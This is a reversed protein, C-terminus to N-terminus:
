FFVPSIRINCTLDAELAEVEMRIGGDSCSVVAVVFICCWGSFVDHKLVFM